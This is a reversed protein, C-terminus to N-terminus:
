PLTLIQTARTSTLLGASVLAAVGATVQPNTLDVSPYALLTLWLELGAPAAIIASQESATFRAVYQATPIVTLAPVSLAYVAQGTDPVISLGAGPRFTSDAVIRNLVTGAPQTTGDSVICPITCTVVYNGALAPTTILSLALILKRM